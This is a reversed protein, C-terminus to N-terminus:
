KIVWKVKGQLPDSELSRTKGKSIIKLQQIKNDAPLCVLGTAQASGALYPVLELEGWNMDGTSQALQIHPIVAGERVLMLVPIKGAPINQRGKEYVKVTQYDIWRGGPLYVNRQTVNEMLPAVLIDSGFLYQDDVLWAGPDNPYEVFLARLMPLARESCDKAQAYIYPMLRYRLNTAERFENMFATGYEWPETPPAGHTRTHSSLM